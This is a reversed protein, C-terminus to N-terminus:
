GVMTRRSIYVNYLVSLMSQYRQLFERRIYLLIISEIHWPHTLHGVSWIFESFVFFNPLGVLIHDNLHKIVNCSEALDVYNLFREVRMSKMAMKQAVPSATGSHVCDLFWLGSKQFIWFTLLAWAFAKISTLRAWICAYSNQTSHLWTMSDLEVDSYRWYWFTFLNFFDSTRFWALDKASSFLIQKIQFGPQMNM